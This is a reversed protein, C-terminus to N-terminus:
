QPLSVDSPQFDGSYIRDLFKAGHGEAIFHRYSMVGFAHPSMGHFMDNIQRDGQDADIESHYQALLRTREKPEMTWLQAAYGIYEEQAHMDPNIDYRYLSKSLSHAIEHTMVSVLIERNFPMKFYPREKLWPSDMRTMDIQHTQVNFLGVVRFGRSAIGPNAGNDATPLGPPLWLPILVEPLFNVQVTADVHQGNENFFRVARAYGECANKRDMASGGSVRVKGPTAHCNVTVYSREPFPTTKASHAM